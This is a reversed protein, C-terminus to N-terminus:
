SKRKAASERRGIKTRGVLLQLLGVALLMVFILTTSYAIALGYDNNEVRGIIYSTAMDYKASVLFIVASIATMARVFSYVLAALIAPKLLPLIIKRFTQWSNAGLTLSSEDLSKDLQSMSAIGARVGVPMNRFIFSIVLIAGTGTLEIPPVNFALIYSVGIVTGPIAFSLMTGFEFANKGRFSQRTLLYATILGVAATLPAAITAIQITTWFSDWASGTWQWGKETIRVSFATVYHKFTLTNDVGWLKVMSGYVIMGYITVTFTSWIAAIALVPIALARPMLPHVGSDGKGSVTTYSKKGLWKRQAFFATLTFGLLVIALVAARGQDYQAGVIAFFIETSLVDFNGGLILPNGFDAMSEIFGLLFANALGPRMLPLSVTKFVQWRSARLTQAAEEMSPSVGEVVGILVLFAIPTYALVQAIMLGPLGYLWRTPELGFLESFFQTISGSLGFMLILALGIVFPPTIIPLITLARVARRYKFGSRTVVLAFILGLVTTLFGVCVALFLSNWAVGCRGTGVVCSLGWLRDDFFKSAFVIFSYSGDETIFASMLMNVIPFFVFAGVIALVFGIAGVVFVDGNIAGRAAIGQTLLFLFSSALFLGGYGMGFQRGDLKGFLTSLWEYNWGRIGISFGQIILWSFGIAGTLILIQAYLPDSKERKFAFLPMILPILLPTLWLKEGQMILFAAPAYNKDFPYGDVLWQGSFLGGDVLYWPLLLFSVWGVLIWLILTPQSLTKTSTTM